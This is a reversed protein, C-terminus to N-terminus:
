KGCRCSCWTDTEYLKTYHISYSTIVTLVRAKESGFIRGQNCAVIAKNFSELAEQYKSAKLQEEGTTVWTNYDKVGAEVEQDYDVPARTQYTHITVDTASVGPIATIVEYLM